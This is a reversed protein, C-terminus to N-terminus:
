RFTWMECHRGTEERIAKARGEESPPRLIDPSERSSAVDTGSVVTVVVIRRGSIKETDLRALFIHLFAPFIKPVVSENSAQENGTDCIDELRVSRVHEGDNKASSHWWIKWIVAYAYWSLFLLQSIMLICVHARSSARRRSSASPMRSSGSLVWLFYLWWISRTNNQVKYM